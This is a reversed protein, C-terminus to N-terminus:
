NQKLLKKGFPIAILIRKVIGKFSKAKVLKQLLILKEHELVFLKYYTNLYWEKELASSSIDSSLGGILFVSIIRNVHKYTANDKCLADIFFAWDACIRIEEKYLGHAILLKRNILSCPHPLTNQVFFGFDLEDPYIQTLEENPLEYLIDGYIIDENHSNKFLYDIVNNDKFYDGANLFLVYDGTAKLVGKNQANYVGKDAESVWYTIKDAYSNIVNISKDTSGGDIVIYEFGKYTQEIVSQITKQLGVADNYNITIISLKM